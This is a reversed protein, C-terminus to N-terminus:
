AVRRKPAPAIAGAFISWFRERAKRSGRTVLKGSKAAEAPTTDGRSIAHLVDLSTEVVLVPDDASGEGVELRGDTLRAHVVDGDIRLEYAETLGRAREAVFNARLAFLLWRGQFRKGKPTPELLKRGWRGLAFVIPELERGLPTLEYVMSGAPRPLRRRAVLGDHELDRLRAALLNTGIGPLSDLLDRYRQPGLILERLVLLTWREGLVDLAQALGCFQGYSRKM